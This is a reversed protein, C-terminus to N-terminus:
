QGPLFVGPLAPAALRVPAGALPWVFFKAPAGDAGERVLMAGWPTFGIADGFSTAASPFVQHIGTPVHVRHVSETTDNVITAYGLWGDDNPWARPYDISSNGPVLLTAPADLTAPVRYIERPRPDFERRAAFAIWGACREAFYFDKVENLILSSGPQSDFVGLVRENRGDVVLWGGAEPVRRMVEVDITGPTLFPVQADGSSMSVNTFQPSLDAALSARFLDAKEVLEGGSSREGVLLTLKTIEFFTMAGIEDLTDTYYADGSIQEASTSQAQVRALLCERTAGEMRWACNEGDDSVALFPGGVSEPLFGASSLAAPATSARRARGDPGFVFAHLAAPGTGATTIAWGRELSMTAEGSFYTPAEGSLFPLADARAGPKREFRWIGSTSTGFGWGNGLWLGAMSFTLPAVTATRNEALGTGLDVEWLDGMAATRTAVLISRGDPAVAIRELYPDQSGGSGMGRRELYSARRGDPRVLLWGFVTTSADVRRAYHYLMGQGRPLALRGHLPSDELLRPRDPLFELLEVRGVFDIPLLEADQMAYADGQDLGRFGDYARLEGPAGPTGSLVHVPGFRQPAVPTAGIQAVASAALCLFPALVSCSRTLPNM